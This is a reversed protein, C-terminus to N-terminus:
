KEFSKFSNQSTRIIDKQLKFSHKELLFTNHMQKDPVIKFMETVFDELSTIRRELLDMLSVIEGDLPIPVTFDIKESQPGTNDIYDSLIDDSGEEMSNNRLSNNKSFKTLNQLDFVRDLESMDFSSTSKNQLLVGSDTNNEKKDFYTNLRKKLTIRKRQDSGNLEVKPPEIIIASEHGKLEINSLRAAFNLTSLSEEVCVRHPSIMCLAILLTDGDFSSQLIRTLKSDRFGLLKGNLLNNVLTGLALLSKNIFSGESRRSEFRSARESGALDIFNLIADDKRSHFNM